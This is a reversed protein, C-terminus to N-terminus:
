KTNGDVEINVGNIYEAKDSILFNICNNIDEPKCFRKLSVTKNIINKILNNEKKLKKDWNNGKILVHGPSVVNITINKKSLILSMYKTYNILCNKALSYSLPANGKFNGAISGIIIIKTLSSRNKFVKLYNEIVNTTSFFNKSFVNKWVKLNEEGSKSTKGSGVNCIIIDIKTIKKKLKKFFNKVSSENEFNCKQLILNKSKINKKAKKLNSNSRGSIIINHNQYAFNKAIEFGIGYSSGTVLINKKM